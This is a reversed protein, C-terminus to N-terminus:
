AFIDERAKREAFEAERQRILQQTNRPKDSLRLAACWRYAHDRRSFEGYLMLESRSFFMAQAHPYERVTRRVVASTGNKTRQVWFTDELLKIRDALARVALATRADVEANGELENITKRSVGLQTALGQQTLAMGKRLARMENGTM